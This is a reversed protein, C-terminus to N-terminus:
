ARATAVSCCRTRPWPGPREVVVFELTAEWSEWVVVAVGGHLIDKPVSGCGFGTDWCLTTVLRHPTTPGGVEFFHFAVVDGGGGFTFWEAPWAQPCGDFVTSTFTGFEFFFDNTGQANCVENWELVRVAHPVDW